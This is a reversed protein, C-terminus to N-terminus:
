ISGKLFGLKDPDNAAQNPLMFPLMLAKKNSIPIQCEVYPLVEYYPCIIFYLKNTVYRIGLRHYFNDCYFLKMSIVIEVNKKYKIPVRVHTSQQVTYISYSICVIYVFNNLCTFIALSHLSSGFISHCHPHIYHTYTDSMM